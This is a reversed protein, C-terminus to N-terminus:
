VQSRFRVFLDRLLPYTAAVIALVMLTGSIPQRFFATWDNDTAIMSRMFANEGVPGLVAGLVLPSIPLKFKEFLYGLVGFIVIMWVDSMSNRNAFSGVLCFLVVIISLVAQPIELVKVVIRIWLFGILCM